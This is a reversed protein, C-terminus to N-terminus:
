SKEYKYYVDTYLLCRRHLHTNMYDVLGVFADHCSLTHSSAKENSIHHQPTEHREPTSLHENTSILSDTSLLQAGPFSVTKIIWLFRCLLVRSPKLREHHHKINFGETVSLWDFLLVFKGGVLALEKM